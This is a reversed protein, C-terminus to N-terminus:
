SGSRRGTRDSSVFKRRRLRWGVILGLVVIVAWGAFLVTLSKRAERAVTLSDVQGTSWFVWDGALRTELLPSGTELVVIGDGTAPDFRASTNIAPDNNGDHGVIFEGANNPAYLLVGLGWIEVGYQYGNPKRMEALTAPRLVGRGIVAGAPGPRHAQILHTLDAVSTYLSSASAASFRYHTAPKGDADYFEAVRAMGPAPTEFTSNNMALPALVARQMYAEFPEGTVDEIMLQLLAYGGGSYLWQSGPQLGVLVAGDAGPSADAARTLSEVPPQVPQDPRFGGYGLGDTLSATHSLLRRVTVERNDFASAPLHWRKLYTDDPADLDVRGANVLTMVGLATIWKNLSAVQFLTNRDVPKGISAFREHRTRGNEILVFGVNGRSDSEIMRDAAAAFAATDGSPALPRRWWGESTGVGLTV